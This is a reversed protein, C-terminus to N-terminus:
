LYSRWQQLETQLQKLKLNQRVRVSVQREKAALKRLAEIEKVLDNHRDIAERRRDVAESEDLLQFKGSITMALIAEIVAQWGRYLSRLNARNQATLAFAEVVENDDPLVAHCTEGELVCRDSERESLRKQATSIRLPKQREDETTEQGDTEGAEDLPADSTILLVPYPIARHVLEMLRTVKASDRLLLSIVAIEIYRQTESTYEPVGVSTPKLSALWHIKEVGSSINKRDTTTNAGNEILLKKPVVRDVRTAKPLGLSDVFQLPTM